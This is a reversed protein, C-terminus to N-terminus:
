KPEIIFTPALGTLTSFGGAASTLWTSCGQVRGFFSHPQVDVRMEVMELSGWRSVPFVSTAPAIVEQVVYANRMATKLAREWAPQEMRAGEFTPAEGTDENPRLVLKERHNLIFAPLDVTTEGYLTKGAAVVRTWPIYDRIAKREHAPFGATVTEDTLLDFMSKKQALESRFSNVMCVARERYARVLPHNLDFRVLFESVRVRRYILDIPFDGKRLVHNRYEIQDPSVIETPYGERRFYEALLVYEGSESTQFPQRFELIAIRPHRDGGFEKYAKLLAQLLPKTGGVKGLAYRKRFEKVPPCDYFLNGLAEGYVAGSPTDASYDVFRLTGNHLHTDLLSTVAFYPYGPDVAALMKEAPLLGVRSMLAPNALAMKEVRDIASSLADAAKALNAYQRQSLFHPRLVPSIPRGAVTLHQERMQRQLEDAWALERYPETELLRHYRAIADELQTM